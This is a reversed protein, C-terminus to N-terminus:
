SHKEGVYVDVLEGPYLSVGQPPNFRFIVPLVRLDVKEQRQNSLQIKPSVYPQVRVFELPIKTNTGRIFMQAELTEAHPLRPILIEDIYCRVALTGKSTGMVVAPSFGQTYTDYAGQPSMYSGVTANISMVVGDAPARLTYKALLANSAAYAKGLAEAQKEQNRVDYAWAGARTLELQRQYVGLNARAVQQANRAGDIADKSVSQPDIDYSRQQKDLQDQASKFSAAAMEVQARAVALNEARPQARLEALVTQAADAQSRQQEVIARQITDDLEVLPTGQTVEQGEKVLIRVVSTAVEPYININEGNTQFSEIIGNAYIGNAYPNPAPNFVPALPKAPVAYVYASFLAGLVGLAVLFFVIKNRM